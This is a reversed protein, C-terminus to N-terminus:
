HQCVPCFGAEDVARLHGEWGCENDPMSKIGDYSPCGCTGDEHQDASAQRQHDNPM